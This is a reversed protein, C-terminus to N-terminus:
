GQALGPLDALVREGRFLHFFLEPKDQRARVYLWIAREIMHRIWICELGSNRELGGQNSLQVSACAGGCVYRAWCKRCGQKQDVDVIQLFRRVKERDLGSEVHGLRTAEADKGTFDTCPYIEGGASVGIMNRGAGCPIRRRYDSCLLPLYDNFPQIYDTVEAGQCGYARRALADMDRNLRLYDDVTLGYAPDDGTVPRVRPNAFGLERLHEDAKLLDLTAHTITARGLVNDRYDDLLSALHATAQAYSGSGDANIRFADHMAQTGDISVQVKFHHRKMFAINDENLLTGNTVVRFAIRKGCRAAQEEAYGVSKKVVAWNLLAEGGFFTIHVEPAPGSEAFLLDIAQRAVEWSMVGRRHQSGAKDAGFGGQGVACYACRLNCDEAMNLELSVVHPFDPEGPKPPLPADAPILLERERLRALSERVEDPTFQSLARVASAEDIPAPLRLLARDVPEILYPRTRHIDHAIIDGDFEFIHLKVKKFGPEAM